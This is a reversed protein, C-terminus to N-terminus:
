KENAGCIRNLVGLVVRGVTELSQPCVHEISDGATHWYDNLGPKSGYHFDILNVAPIGASLFPVHDDLVEFPYLAFNNRAGQDRATQFVYSVLEPTSNRPITITLDCDGIMDLLIMAQVNKALGNKELTEALYRSGHLGDRPGYKNICEEGDFFVFWIEPGSYASRILLRALELLLGTSSGSDNAGQFEPQIDCKTDFHSALIIIGDRTGPRRGIVNYFTTEGLPTIDIFEDIQASLKFQKLRTALYEAALKAGPTGSDRRGVELFKAVEQYAADGDLQQPDLEITETTQPAPTCGTVLIVAAALLVLPLMQLASLVTWRRGIEPNL